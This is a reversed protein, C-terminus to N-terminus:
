DIRRILLYVLSLLLGCGLFWACLAAIFYIDWM